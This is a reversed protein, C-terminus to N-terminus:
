EGVIPGRQRSRHWAPGDKRHLSGSRTGFHYIWVARHHHSLDGSVVNGMGPYKRVYRRAIREVEHPPTMGFQFKM